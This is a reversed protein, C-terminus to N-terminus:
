RGIRIRCISLHTTYCIIWKLRTYEQAICQRRFGNKCAKGEKWLRDLEAKRKTLVEIGNGEQADKLDKEACLIGNEAYLQMLPAYAEAQVKGGPYFILGALPEKPVFYIM